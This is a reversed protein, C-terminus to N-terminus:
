KRRRSKNKRSKRRKTKRKKSKSKRRGGNTVPTPHANLEMLKRQTKNYSEFNMKVPLGFQSKCGTYIMDTFEGGLNYHDGIIMTRGNIDTPEPDM